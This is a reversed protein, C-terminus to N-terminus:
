GFTLMRKIEPALSTEFIRSFDKHVMRIGNRRVIPQLREPLTEASPMVVDGVLVPIISLKEEALALSTEVRVFDNPDELRAINEIWGHGIIPLFVACEEISKRVVEVFDVGLPVSDVDMFVSGRGFESEIRDFLRGAANEDVGRRYSIFIRSRLPGVPEELSGKTIAAFKDVLVNPDIDTLSLCARFLKAAIADSNLSAILLHGSRIPNREFDPGSFKMADHIIRFLDDNFEEVKSAGAPLAAIANGFDAVIWDSRVNFFECIKSADGDKMDFIEHMFHVLEVYANGSKKALATAGSFARLTEPNLRKVLDKRTIM